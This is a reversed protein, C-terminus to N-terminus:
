TFWRILSKVFMKLNYWFGNELDLVLIEDPYFYYWDQFNKDWVGYCNLRSNYGNENFDSVDGEL